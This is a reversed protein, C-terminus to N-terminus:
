REDEELRVGWTTTVSQGPELRILREGSQFANPPCTMPEVGLGLRQRGRSLNDGTYIQIIPYNDDVWLAVGSGDPSVLRAWARGAEDRSLDTFPTDLEQSGLRRGPRFDFDTGDVSATGTPLQREDDTLIVTSAALNLTCDDVRGVSPSLYPHQGAGYPCARDGVNVATTSVELGDQGLLYAVELDLAFPYGKLPRLHTGMVVRDAAQSVPQWSRWRLFGHIANRKKPETLSVNYDVEDFRYAGDGLRNPWPILPAGHAGDCMAGLPYPDLVPREGVVYERVGGGVEVITARASRHRIEFQEGSPAIPM